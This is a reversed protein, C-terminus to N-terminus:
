LGVIFYPYWPAVFPPLELSRLLQGCFLRREDTLDLVYYPRLIDKTKGQKSVRVELQYISQFKGVCAPM